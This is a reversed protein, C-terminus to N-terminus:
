PAVQELAQRLAAADTFTRRGTVSLRDLDLWLLGQEPVGLLPVLSPERDLVVRYPYDRMAPLAFLSAVLGPMRSIDAVFLTGRQELWGQPQGAMATELLKAADMNRAVLLVKLQPDTSARQEFQDELSWSPLPQGIEIAGALPSALALLLALYKM